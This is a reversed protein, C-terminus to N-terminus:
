MMLNGAINDFCITKKSGNKLKIEIDGYNGFSEKDSFVINEIPFLEDDSFDTLSNKLITQSILICTKDGGYKKVRELEAFIILSNKSDPNTDTSRIFDLKEFGTYVTMAMQKERGLHDRGKFIISRVGEKERKIIETGNDPFGFSSLTITAPFRNLCIKDARIIGYETPFDSLFIEQAWGGDGIYFDFLQKRYLVGNKEGCWLTVNGNTYRDTNDKIVYQQSKINESGKITDEWPLSTSYCLKSYCLMGGEDDKSRMVKGSRLLTDGSLLHNTFSLGPAPLTTELVSPTDKESWIGDNEVSSWLPHDEPFYLALFIKGMWFPSATCSYSQVCPSFQGYFGLSPAGYHMFDDRELFQLLSGSLIRRAWGPNASPQKLFFNGVFASTAACRYISSRGWMNVHGERSFMLPYSEMLKNSNEEFKEAIEPLKEYGYYKNWIPAYLNFAWCSYYDYAVDKYWGDGAYLDLLVRAHELMVNEDIEYGANYLFTLNLMNFFRWNQAGTNAYAYSKLFAAVTDKESKTYSQWLVDITILLGVSLAASEVSQQFFHHKKKDECGNLLSEFDGAYFPDTPTCLRLIMNKYYKLLSKGSVTVDPNDSILPAAIFFTRAVTEFVEAKEQRKRISESANKHPYTIDIESRKFKLPSSLDSLNEFPSSLLYKGAEIFSARTLGTFPSKKFDLEKFISKM